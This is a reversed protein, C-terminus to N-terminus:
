QEQASRGDSQWQGRVFRLRDLFEATRREGPFGATLVAELEALRARLTPISVRDAALAALGFYVAQDLDHRRAALIGLTCRTEAIRMPHRTQGDPKLQHVLVQWACDEAASDDGLWLYATAAHATLKAEDMQFHHMEDFPWPLRDLIARARDLANEARRRDRQRAAAKAEHLALRAAVPSDSTAVEGAEASALADAFRGETLAFWTTMEIAWAALDAHGAQAALDRVSARHTEARRRQGIDFLACGLIASFWGSVVLLRRRDAPRIGVQLLRGVLARRKQALTVIERVPEHGYDRCLDDVASELSELTGPSVELAPGFVVGGSGAGAQRGVAGDPDTNSIAEPVHPSETPPSAPGLAAASAAARLAVAEPTGTRLSEMRAGAWGLSPQWGVLRETQGASDGPRHGPQPGSRSTARAFSDPSAAIAESVRDPPDFGLDEVPVGLLSSLVRRYASRPWKVEGREWRAVRREDCALNEGMTEARRRLARAFERRSESRAERLARLRLNPATTREPVDSPAM